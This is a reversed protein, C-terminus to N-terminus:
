VREIKLVSWMCFIMKIVASLGCKGIQVLASSSKEGPLSTLMGFATGRVLSSLLRQHTKISLPTKMKASLSIYLTLPLIFTLLLHPQCTFSVLLIFILGDSLVPHDPCFASRLAASCAPSEFILQFLCFDPVPSYLLASTSLRERPNSAFPPHNVKFLLVSSLSCWILAHLHGIDHWLTFPGVSIFYAWWKPILPREPFCEIILKLPRGTGRSEGGGQESM